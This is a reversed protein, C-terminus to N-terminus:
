KVRRLLRKTLKEEILIMLWHSLLLKFLLRTLFFNDNQILNDFFIVLLISDLIQEFM